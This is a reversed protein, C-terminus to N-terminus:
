ERVFCAHGRAALTRCFAAAEARSGFGGVLARHYTRGGVVARAVSTTAGAMAEPVLRAVRALEARAQADSEAAAIQAAGRWAASRPPAPIPPSPGPQAAPPEPAPRPPAPSAAVRRSGCALQITRGIV